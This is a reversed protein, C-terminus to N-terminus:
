IKRDSSTIELIKRFLLKGLKAFNENKLTSNNNTANM